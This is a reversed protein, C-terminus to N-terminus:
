LDKAVPRNFLIILCIMWAGLCVYLVTNLILKSQVFILLVSVLGKAGRYSIMDVLYKAGFKQAKTLPYYMLEKASSFISYDVGKFTVFLLSYGFLNPSLTMVGILLSTYLIPIGKHVSKPPVLNLLFPVFFIQCIFNITNVWTFVEGLYRTQLIKESYTQELAINFNFHVINICFQTLSIIVCLLFVYQKVESIASLPAKVKEEGENSLCESSDCLMFFIGSLLVIVSGIMLILEVNMHHTLQKTIVSGLIGGISGVAGVIGYFSKAHKITLSANFHGFLIHICLVIYAEKWVVLGYALPKFLDGVFYPLSFFILSFLSTGLYLLQINVKRQFKNYIFVFISIAVISFTWSLPSKKAGYADFFIASTTSRIIPYSLLVSFVSLLLFSVLKKEEKDLGTLTKKIDSLVTLIPKM